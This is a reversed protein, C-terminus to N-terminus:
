VLGLQSAVVVAQLRTAVGLKDKVKTVHNRATIRSIGLTAAIESTPLGRALLRLTDLERPTLPQLALAEGRRAVRLPQAAPEGSSAQVRAIARSLREDLRHQATVDRFFHVVRKQGSASHAIVTSVSLWKLEGQRTTAQMEFTRTPRGRRANHIAACHERCMQTGTTQHEGMVAACLSGIVLDAPYGLALEAADNWAVIRQNMDVSVAPDSTKLVDFALVTEERTVVGSM